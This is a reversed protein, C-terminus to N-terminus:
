LKLIVYFECSNLLTPYIKDVKLQIYGLENLLNIIEKFSDPTFQLSHVDVYNNTEMGTNYENIAALVNASNVVRNGHDNAWHRVTDNHCTLARHEIVSKVTHFPTKNLHYQLVDAITTERIFHDFCYRKDPLLIAYYGGPTLIKEVDKLHQIFDIQHEISHCSLVLDYKNNIITLDGTDSIHKIFPINTLNGTRGITIARNYLGQQDLVDFYEVNPGQIVPCDFPGIELCCSFKPLLELIFFRNEVRSCIRGERKGHNNYHLVLKDDSMHSLDPNKLRYIEPDFESPFDVM